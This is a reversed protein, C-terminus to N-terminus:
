IKNVLSPFNLILLIGFATMVIKHSVLNGYISLEEAHPYWWCVFLEDVVYKENVEDICTRSCPFTAKESMEVDIFTFNATIVASQNIFEVNSTTCKVIYVDAYSVWGTIGYGMLLCSGTLVFLIFPLQRCFRKNRKEEEVIKKIEALASNASMNPKFILRYKKM